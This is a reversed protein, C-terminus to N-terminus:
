CLFPVLSDGLRYLSICSELLQLCVTDTGGLFVTAMAYKITEETELGLDSSDTDTKELLM